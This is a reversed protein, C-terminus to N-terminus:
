RPASSPHCNVLWLAVPGESSSRMGLQKRHLKISGGLLVPCMQDRAAETHRAILRSFKAQAEQAAPM